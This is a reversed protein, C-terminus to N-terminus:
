TGTRLSLSVRQVTRASTFGEEDLAPTSFRHVDYRVELALRARGGLPLRYDLTLVGLGALPGSGLRFIGTEDAPFYKLAGVAAAAAFGAPLRRRLGVAVTAATLRGLDATAGGADHRVLHSSSGDFTAQAAWGRELPATITLAVAPALAARVDFPAVISDHVLTSSYRIGASVRLSLQAEAFRPAAWLLAAVVL